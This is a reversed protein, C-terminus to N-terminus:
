FTILVIKGCCEDVVGCKNQVNCKKLEKGLLACIQKRKLTFQLNLMLQNLAFHPLILFMYILSDASDCYKFNSLAKVILPLVLGCLIYFMTLVTVGATPVNFLQALLYTLLLSAFAFAAFLAFVRSLEDVSSWGDEQFAGLVGVMIFSSTLLVFYDSM